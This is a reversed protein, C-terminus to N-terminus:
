NVMKKLQQLFQPNSIKVSRFGNVKGGRDLLMSLIGFAMAIRHDDYSQFEAKINKPKGSISFGSEYEDVILDLLKLNECIAKIRDTEKKRLESANSIEFKGDAFIGAIALVPIEDIMNPIIEEPIKVNNLKSSKVFIDGFEEGAKEQKNDIKIYGGMKKLVNIYGTRTENLSINKLTLSSNESLLTLVIFFAATSIDSPIFYEKPEPYNKKSSYSIIGEENKEVKLGLMKETHDRSQVKEIVSTTDDIHLGAILVASKIQASSVPLEYKIAKLKGGPNITIPLTDNDSCTIKGGMATLPTIVRKMPRQSLSSDGTIISKFNQAVLLGSMLRATTGSNGSYLPKVPMAFNGLGKGEIILEKNDGNFEIGLAEFCEKTSRVDESNSLNLIRSEGKAMASFILARHSISKDGPLVLEGQIRSIKEFEQVM